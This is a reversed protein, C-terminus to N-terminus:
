GLSKFSSLEPRGSQGPVSAGSDGMVEKGMAKPSRAVRIANNSPDPATLHRQLTPGLWATVDQTPMEAFPSLRLVYRYLAAGLVQSAIM